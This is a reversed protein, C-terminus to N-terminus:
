FRHQKTLHVIVLTADELIEYSHELVADFQVSEGSSLTHQEHMMKVRVKGSLVWCLEFEDGHAEPHSLCDGVKALAHFVDIGQYAIKQFDFPGSRYSVSRKVHASRNECLGLLDSTSLGFVRAIRYLTELECVNQNRELKSLVPISIGSRDSVTELTDGAAKRLDRIVSFDLTSVSDTLHMKFIFFLHIKYKCSFYLQM